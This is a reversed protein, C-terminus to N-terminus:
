KWVRQRHFAVAIPLDVDVAVAGLGDDTVARSHFRQSGLTALNAIKDGFKAFSAFDPGRRSFENKIELHLRSFKFGVRGTSALVKQSNKVM